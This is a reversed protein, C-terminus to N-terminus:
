VISAILRTKSTEASGPENFGVHGTRGIGLVQIDLGGVAEIKEEYQRCFEYVDNRDLTGDPIHINERQIDIHDFLYENMFHVYSHISDPEMPYYEDLNFTVVNKFSLGEEKHMRVLEDYVQTPTSGTALGLVTQEGKKDKEKILDAIEKAAYISAIKASEFVKTPIKEFKEFDPRILPSSTM